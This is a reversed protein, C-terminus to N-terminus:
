RDRMRQSHRTTRLNRKIAGIVAVASTNRLTELEIYNSYHNLHVLYNRGNLQFLDAGLREWPRSPIAHSQMPEQSRESLYQSCVACSSCTQRIAAQMGLWNVSEKARRISSDAGQHVKHIKQLLEPRLSAPVIVQHSKFLVDYVSIENRFDWYARIEDPVDSKQSPWGGLVVKNLTTLSPDKGTEERIQNMTGPKVFNPSLDMQTLDVRFVDYEQTMRSPSQHGDSLPARSLTDAM